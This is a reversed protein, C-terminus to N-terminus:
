PFLEARRMLRALIRSTARPGAWLTRVCAASPDRVRTYRIERIISGREEALGMLMHMCSENNLENDGDDIIIIAPFDRNM